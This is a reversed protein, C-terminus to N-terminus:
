RQIESAVAPKASSDDATSSAGVAHGQVPSMASTETSQVKTAELATQSGHAKWSRYFRFVGPLWRKARTIIRLKSDDMLDRTLASYYGPRYPLAFGARVWGFYSLKDRHMHGWRQLYGGWGMNVLRPKLEHWGAPNTTAQSLLWPDSELFELFLKSAEALEHMEMLKSMSTDSRCAFFTSRYSFAISRNLCLKVIMATEVHFGRPFDNYGGCAMLEKTRALFSTYNSFGYEFLGRVFTEGPVLQPVGPVSEGIARREGDVIVQRAMALAVDPHGELRTILDSVFNPSLWDDDDVMVFYDGTAERVIQNYHQTVNVTVANQRFRWPRGWVQDVIEPVKTGNQGNDSVILEIHPYDQAAVARVGQALYHLRKYIPIGITVIPSM